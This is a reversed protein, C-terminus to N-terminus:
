IKEVLWGSDIGFIEVKDGIKPVFGNCCVISLESQEKM